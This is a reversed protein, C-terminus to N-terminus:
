GGVVDAVWGAVTDPDHALAPTAVVLETRVRGPEDAASWPGTLQLGEREMFALLRDNVTAADGPAWVEFTPTHPPTPHPTLGRSALGDALARAWALCEAMRPLHERLGVLGSIAEPTMRFITGGMRKRWQRAEDLFDSPGVLAAGALGGLGKYFSVYMSDALAAIDTFPRDWFPQAEWIRAGDVHLAVGRERAAASLATLEEWTPLACGADRLPLEVLVAGLRGPVAALREATSLTRGTTLHIVELGHLLRPGDLEHVLPHALDPMAVRRVGARDCWVRLAAQQAMTGSPFFAAGGTGFIEVLQEELLEVAGREAYQDFWLDRREAEAALEALVQAPRTPQHWFVTRECARAATRYRDWYDDSM